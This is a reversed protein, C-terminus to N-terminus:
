FYQAKLFYDFHHSAHKHCYLDQLINIINKTEKWKGEKPGEYRTERGKNIKDIPSIPVIFFPM